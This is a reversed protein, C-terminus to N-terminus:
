AGASELLDRADELDKMSKTENLEHLKEGLGVLGDNYDFLLSIFSDMSQMSLQYAIGAVYRRYYAEGAKITVGFMDQFDTSHCQTLYWGYHRPYLGNLAPKYKDIKIPKSKAKKAM